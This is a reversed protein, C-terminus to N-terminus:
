RGVRCIESMVPGRASHRRRVLGLTVFRAIRRLALGSSIGLARGIEAGAVNEDWWTSPVRQLVAYEGPTLTIETPM